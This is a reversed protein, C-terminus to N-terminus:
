ALSQDFLKVADSSRLVEVKSLKSDADLYLQFDLGKHEDSFKFYFPYLEREQALLPSNLSISRQELAYQDLENTKIDLYKIKLPSAADIDITYMPGWDGGVNFKNQSLDPICVEIQTKHFPGEWLFKLDKATKFESISSTRSM